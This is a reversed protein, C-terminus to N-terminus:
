DINYIRLVFLFKLFKNEPFLKRVVNANKRTKLMFGETTKKKTKQKPEIM